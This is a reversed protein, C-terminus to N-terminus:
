RRWEHVERQQELLGSDPCGKDDLRGVVGMAGSGM